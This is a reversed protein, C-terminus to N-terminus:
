QLIIFNQSSNFLCTEKICQIVSHNKLHNTLVTDNYLLTFAMKIKKFNAETQMKWPELFIPKLLGQASASDSEIVKFLKYMFLPSPLHCMVDDEIHVGYFHFLTSVITEIGNLLFSNDKNPSKSYLVRARKLCSFIFDESFNKNNELMSLIGCLEMSVLNKSKFIISRELFVHPFLNIYHVVDEHALLSVMYFGIFTNSAARAKIHSSLETINLTNGSLFLPTNTAVCIDNKKSIELLLRPVVPHEYAPVFMLSPKQQQKTAGFMRAKVAADVM